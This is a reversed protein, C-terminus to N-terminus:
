VVYVVELAHDVGVHLAPLLLRLLRFLYDRLLHIRVELPLPGEVRHRGDHVEPLLHLVDPSALHLLGRSLKVAHALFLPPGQVDHGLGDHVLDEM